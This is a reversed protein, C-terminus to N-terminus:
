VIAELGCLGRHVTLINKLEHTQKEDLRLLNKSVIDEATFLLLEISEKAMFINKQISPRRLKKWNPATFPLM